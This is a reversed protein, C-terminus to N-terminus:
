GDHSQHGFLRIAALLLAQLKKAAVLRANPQAFDAVPGRVPLHRREMGFLGHHHDLLEIANLVFPSAVQEYVQDFM